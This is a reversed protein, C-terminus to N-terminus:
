DRAGAAKLVAVIDARGGARDLVTRQHRHGGRANVDAGAAILAKVCDLCGREVAGMLATERYEDSAKVDAGAAILAKVCDACGENASFSLATRGGGHKANVDAGAAVLAAICAACPPSEMLATSGSGGKANVDAGAAILAKVCDACGYDAFGAGMRATVAGRLATFGDAARANVDARAAILAKICDLCGAHAADMLATWGLTYDPTEDKANLDVHAAILARVRQANGATAAKMLPTSRDNDKTNMAAQAGNNNIEFTRGNDETKSLDVGNLTYDVRLKYLPYGPLVTFGEVGEAVERSLTEGDGYKYYVTMKADRMFFWVNDKVTYTVDHDGTIPSHLVVRIVTPRVGKAPDDFRGTVELSTGGRVMARVKDTVDVMPGDPLDGYVAKRIVLAAAANKPTATQGAAAVEGSASPTTAGTAGAAKLLHVVDAHGQQSAFMLATFGSTAFIAGAVKDTALKDAALRDAALKAAAEDAALKDAALRAAAEDAALKAAAQSREALLQAEAGEEPVTRIRFPAGSVGNSGVMVPFSEGVKIPRDLQMEQRTPVVKNALEDMARKDAVLEAALKDVAKKDAV